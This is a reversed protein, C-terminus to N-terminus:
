PAAEATVEPTPLVIRFEAGRPSRNSAEVRGGHFEGVIQRVWDLGLGEGGEAKTTYGLRFVVDIEGPDMLRGDRHRIGTGTDAVVIEQTQPRRGLRTQLVIEPAVTPTASPDSSARRVSDLANSVLNFVALRLLRPDAVVPGLDPATEVRIPVRGGLMEGYLTAIHVVVDGLAIPEPAPRSLYSFSRYINVIEQQFRTAKLLAEVSERMVALRAPSSAMEEPSLKLVTQLAMLDLKATAIINTLDHGLNRALSINGRSSQAALRRQQEAVAALAFSLERAIDAFLDRWWSTLPGGSSLLLVVRELEGGAVEEMMWPASKDNAAHDGIIAHRWAGPDANLPLRALRDRIAVPAADCPDAPWHAGLHWTEGEPARRLICVGARELGFHQRLLGPTAEHLDSQDATPSDVLRRLSRSFGALNADRALRNYGQELPTVARGLFPAARTADRDLAGLVRRSPLLVGVLLLAWVAWLGAVLAAARRRWVSTLVEIEPVGMPSTVHITVAGITRDGERRATAISRTWDAHILSNSWNNQAAIRAPDAVEVNFYGDADQINVKWVEPNRHLVQELRLRMDGIWFRRFEVSREDNGSVSAFTRAYIDLLALLSERSGDALLRKEEILRLVIENKEKAYYARDVQDLLVATAALIIATWAVILVDRRVWRGLRSVVDPQPPRPTDDPM